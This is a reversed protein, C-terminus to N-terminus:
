NGNNVQKILDDIGNIQPQYMLRLRDFSPMYIFRDRDDDEWAIWALDQFKAFAKQIIDVVKDDNLDSSKDTYTNTILKQLAIKEEEYESFLILIFGSVSDIELNGDLKFLKFFLMGIIVYETKLYERYEPSINGRSGEEFDIFYYRNFDSGGESLIVKFIDLYYQNLSKFYQNIFRFLEEPKPYERQIHVGSRLLYDIKAFIDQAKRDNLFEYVNINEM